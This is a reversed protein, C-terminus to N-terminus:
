VFAETIQDYSHYEGFLGKAMLTLLFSLTFESSIAPSSELADTLDSITTADTFDANTTAFVFIMSLNVSSFLQSMTDLLSVLTDPVDFGTLSEIPVILDNISEICTKLAIIEHSDAINGNYIMTFPFTYDGYGLDCTNSSGCDVDTDMGFETDSMSIDYSIGTAYPTLVLGITSPDLSSLYSSALSYLTALDKSYYKLYYTGSIASNSDFTYSPYESTDPCPGINIEPFPNSMLSGMASGVLAITPVVLRKMM